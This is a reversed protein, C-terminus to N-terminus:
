RDDKTCDKCVAFIELRHTIDSFGKLKLNKEISDIICEHVSDIKHCVKCVVHHHHHNPDNYEFFAYDKNLYTMSVLQSEVFQNLCRYITAQDCSQNPLKKFIEEASFPGHERILLSLILKRPATISLKKDKLLKICQQDILKIKNLSLVSM